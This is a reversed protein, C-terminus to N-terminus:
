IQTSGRLPCPSSDKIFTVDGGITGDGRSYINQVKGGSYVVLASVGDENVSWGLSALPSSLYKVLTTAGPKLKELSGMPYPLKTRIREIPLAGVAKQDARRLKTKEKKNLYHEIADYSNDSLNGGEYNYYLYAALRLISELEKTTLGKAFKDPDENITEANPFFRPYCKGEFLYDCLFSSM